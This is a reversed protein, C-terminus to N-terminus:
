DVQLQKPGALTAGLFGMPLYAFVLDVVAFWIPGGFMTVMMIGGILFLIAIIFAIARPHSAALKAAIFAGALTGLAHALFPAIFNKPELLKLNEAFRDMDSMDVGDPPPILTPGVTIIAMNTISGIIFGIIVAVTNKLIAPM